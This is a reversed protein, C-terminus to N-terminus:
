RKAEALAQIPRAAYQFSNFGTVVDFAADEFPLQEMEGVRLDATPVRQRAVALLSETADLGAVEAGRTAGLHCALGAGCGVDLYRTGPGVNTRELVREFLPRATGEQM